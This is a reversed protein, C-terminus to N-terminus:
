QLSSTCPINTDRTYLLVSCSVREYFKHLSDHESCSDSCVVISAACFALGERLRQQWNQSCGSERRNWALLKREREGGWGRGRGEEMSQNGPSCWVWPTYLPPCINIATGDTFRYGHSQNPVDSYLKTHQRQQWTNRIEPVANIMHSFNGEGMIFLSNVILFPM